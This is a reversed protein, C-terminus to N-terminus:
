YVGNKRIGSIIIELVKRARQPPLNGSSLNNYDCFGDSIDAFLEKNTDFDEDSMVDASLSCFMDQFYEEETLPSFDENSSYMICIYNFSVM